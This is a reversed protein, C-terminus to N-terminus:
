RIPLMLVVDVFDEPRSARKLKQRAALIKTHGRSVFEGFSLFFLVPLVPQAEMIM